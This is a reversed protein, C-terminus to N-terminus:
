SVLRAELDAGTSEARLTCRNGICASPCSMVKHFPSRQRFFALVRDTKVHPNVKLWDPKSASSRLPTRTFFRTCWAWARADGSFKPLILNDLQIRIRTSNRKAASATPGAREWLPQADRLAAHCCGGMCVCADVMAFLPSTMGHWEAICIPLCLTKARAQLAAKSLNFSKIMDNARMVWRLELLGILFGHSLNYLVAVSTQLEREHRGMRAALANAMPIANVLVMAFTLLYTWFCEARVRDGIHRKGYTSEQCGLAVSVFDVINASAGFNILSAM